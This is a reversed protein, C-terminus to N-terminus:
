ADLLLFYKLELRSWNALFHDRNLAYPSGGTRNVGRQGTAFSAYGATRSMEGHRALDFDAGAAGYPACFHRCETGLAQEIEAKSKTMQGLADDDSLSSLRTHTYSHSGITMGAATMQRCDEWSLFEVSTERSRFNFTDRLFPDTPEITKGALSAVVYFTAPIDLEALVPVAGTLCSKLGDDFSVCFYRGDVREEGALLSVADDMSVFEGYNKLYTLHNRFGDVEDEFVHHYYPFWLGGGTRNIPKALSLACVAQSRLFGRLQEMVPADKRWERYTTTPKL